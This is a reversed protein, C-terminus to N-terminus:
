GRSPSATGMRPSLGGNVSQCGGSCKLASATYLLQTGPPIWDSCVTASKAGIRMMSLRVKMGRASRDNAKAASAAGCDTTGSEVGEGPGAFGSKKLRTM